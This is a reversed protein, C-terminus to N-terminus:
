IKEARPCILVTQRSGNECLLAPLRVIPANQPRDGWPGSAPIVGGPEAGPMFLHLSPIFLRTICKKLIMHEIDFKITDNGM